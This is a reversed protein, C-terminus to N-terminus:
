KTHKQKTDVVYQDWFAELTMDNFLNKSRDETHDMYVDMGHYYIPNIWPFESQFHWMNFFQGFFNDNINYRIDTANGKKLYHIRLGSQEFWPLTVPVPDGQNSFRLHRIWGREELLAFSKKYAQNGVPPSAFSLCAVPFIMPYKNLRDGGAVMFAFIQAMAGGLSHGSVYLQYDIFNEEKNEALQVLIDIIHNCTSNVEYTDSLGLYLRFGHHIKFFNRGTMAEVKEPSEVESRYLQLDTVVGHDNNTGRFVV